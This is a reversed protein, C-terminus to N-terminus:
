KSISEHWSKNGLLNDLDLAQRANRPVQVGFKYKPVLSNKQALNAITALNAIVNADKMYDTTWNFDRHALLKHQRAYNVLVWPNQEQLAAASVRTVEGNM